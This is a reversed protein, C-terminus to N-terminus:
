DRMALQIKEHLDKQHVTYLIVHIDLLLQESINKFTPTGLFKAFKM